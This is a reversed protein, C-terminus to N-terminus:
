FNLANLAIQRTTCVSQTKRCVLGRVEGGRLKQFYSPYTKAIGSSEPTGCNLLRVHNSQEIHCNQRHSRNSSQRQSRRRLPRHQAQRKPQHLRSSRRRPVAHNSRFQRM